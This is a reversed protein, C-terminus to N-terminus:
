LVWLIIQKTPIFIVFYIDISDNSVIEVYIPFLDAKSYDIPYNTDIM